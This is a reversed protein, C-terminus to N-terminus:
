IKLKKLEKYNRNLKKLLFGYILRYFLWIFGVMFLLGLFSILLVVFWFKFESGDERVGELLQMIKEDQTFMHYITFLTVLVAMVLNYGVYYQVIKRTKLIREMLSKVNDASSIGRYAKYLFYIFVAIVGFTFINSYLMFLKTSSDEIQGLKEYFSDVLFPAIAMLVWFLLELISIYFIWKVISSSKKWIMTYIQNYSLKPLQEEKNQWDKKLLELEDMM